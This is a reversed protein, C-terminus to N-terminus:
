PARSTRNRPATRLGPTMSPSKQVNAFATKFLPTLQEAGFGSLHHEDLYYSNGNKQVDCRVPGCLVSSPWLLTLAYKKSLEEITQRFYHQRSEFEAVTPRIDKASHLVHLKALTDPVNWGVEPVPGVVVIKRNGQKLFRLTRELGRRFVAKNEEFSQVTSNDDSLWAVPGEERGYPTGMATRSWRAALVVLNIDPRTRLLGVVADNFARCDAYGVDSRAVGILPPCAPQAVVLGAVGTASAADSIAPVLSNAHSDGWLLFSIPANANGIRCLAGATIRDIRPNFCRERWQKDSSSLLGQVRPDHRPSFGDDAAIAAGALVFLVMATLATGFLAKPTLIGRKGRFPREVYRYSGWALLFSLMILGAKEMGTLGDIAYYNAMVYLPWHWLYLSYSLLGVLVPIQLGLLSRVLSNGQSGSYIVLAAGICPLLAAPGPFPTADDFFVVAFGIMGLGAVGLIERSLRAQPVPVHRLAIVAGLMLEWMRAPLLYFTAFPWLRVGAVSGAFSALLLLEVCWLLGSRRSKYIALLLTPYILYFQEEVGLSWTHLLPKTTRAVDFYGGEQWFLINSSFLTTTILSRGFRALDAPLLILCSLLTAAGLVAFLSPFIRRVRREYFSVLSFRGDRMETHILTTILYGSIVFFVDVGVFGGDFGPLRFHYFVVPLVAVARLGDIDPRYREGAAEIQNLNQTAFDGVVCM